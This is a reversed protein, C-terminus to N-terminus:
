KSLTILERYFYKEQTSEFPRYIYYAYGDHIKLKDASHFQLSYRGQEQGNQLSIQKIYKHGNKEYVAYITNEIDDKLMVNKWEKWNKPHNYSISISDIKQGKRDVHFLLNKYHDFISITDKVVYLPAYLPEYFMSKTFGSMLSAVIHKDVNLDMAMRRAQLKENPKMSYYEFNYAHMLEKDEISILKSRTSDKENFAFYNFLPYDKWYDTYIIKGNITDLIPKIFSNVDEVALPILVFRDHYMNIRYIYNECVLNTYGMYDHYFEKALGGEKPVTFSTIVKGKLDTLKLVAERLSKVATLLIFKDEYFDFDYVSYAPSGLITDPRAKAYIPVMSLETAVPKLSVSINVSDSIDGLDAEKVRTVHSLLKYVLSVHKKAPILLRYYGQKDTTAYYTSNQVQVLVHRLPAHTSDDTVRGYITMQGQGKSVAAVTLLLALLYTTMTNMIEKVLFVSGSICEM